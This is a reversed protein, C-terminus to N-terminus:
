FLTVEVETGAELLEVDEPIGIYGDAESLSTLAGSGKFTDYAKGAELRVPLFQFRGKQHLVREGLVARVTRHPRPPLRALARLAPVLFLYANMLCSTPNGPFGILAQGSRLRAVLLPKGPKVRVGHVLIEGLPRVADQLVDREGVSSGGSVLVLDAEAMGKQLAAVHAELTDAVVPHLLPIGGNERVVAALTHTNSNYIQGEGVPSGLPVIENGTPLILVRPRRYCAVETLGLSALLGVRAPTLVVGPALVETGRAIDSGQEALSTGPTVMEVVVVHGEPGARTGEVRVVADAGPPLKGGTAIQVCTGPLVSPAAPDGAHTVALLRLTKPSLTSAGFTDAARVAYGDMTSRTFGPVDLPAVVPQALVRGAAEVTVVQETAALPAVAGLLRALAEEKSALSAFPRMRAM